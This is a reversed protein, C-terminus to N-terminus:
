ADIDLRERERTLAVEYAKERVEVAEEITKFTGLHKGKLNATYTDYITQRVGIIGVNNRYKMLRNQQNELRTVVRLNSIRNDDRVGNIHDIDLGKSIIKDYYLEWALCHSPYDIRDFTIMRYGDSTIWGAPKDLVRSLKYKTWWLLGTDSDYKIEKKLLKLIIGTM